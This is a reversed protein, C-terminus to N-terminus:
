EAGGYFAFANKTGRKVRYLAEDAKRLLENAELGDQPYLSIGISVGVRCDAGDVEIPRRCAAIIKAAVPEVARRDELDAIVAVFEDGGVRAVTDSGRLARKLREAVVVLALDGAMHGHADNIPKFDDLDLYMVALTKKSRIARGIAADLLESLLLRNPLGTLGDHNAIHSIKRTLRELEAKESQLAANVTALQAHIRSNELAVAVFAALSSLLKVDEESYVSARVSRVCLVGIVRKDAILPVYVGSLVHADSRSPPANLFHSWERPVDNLRLPKGHAAVWSSFSDPSDEPISFPPASEGREYVLVFELERKEANRYVFAFDSVDILAAIREYVIKGIQLTDLSSAVERGIDSVALLRANTLELERRHEKLEVNRLRYIEAEARAAEQQTRAEASHVLRSVRVDCLNEEAAHFRKFDALAAEPDGRKEHVGSRLMWLEALFRSLGADVALREATGLTAVAEGYEGSDASHEARALLVEVHVQPQACRGSAALARDLSRLAAPLDGRLKAVSALSVSSLSEIVPNDTRDAEELALELYGAANEAEGRRLLTRGISLLIRAALDPPADPASRGDKLSESARLFYDLANRDEGSAALVEGISNLSSAELGPRASSRSLEAAKMFRELARAYEGREYDISGLLLFSRACGAFDDLGLHAELAETGAREAEELERSDFKGLAFALLDAASDSM